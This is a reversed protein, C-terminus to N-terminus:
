CNKESTTSGCSPLYTMVRIVRIVGVMVRIVRIVGVVGIKGRIVRRGRYERMVVWGRWWALGKGGLGCLSMDLKLVGECLLDVKKPDNPNNANNPNNPNNRESLRLNFQKLEKISLAFPAHPIYEKPFINNQM